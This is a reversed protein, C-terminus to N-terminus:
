GPEIPDLHLRGDSRQRLTRQLADRTTYAIADAAEDIIKPDSTTNLKATVCGGPFLTYSTIAPGSPHPETREFRTTGAVKAPAPSAGSTECTASLRVVVAPQGLKTHDLTFRTWGNRVNAAGVTWGPPLPRVCPLLSASPVSQAELLLPELQDCRLSNTPLPTTTADSNVLVTKFSFAVVLAAPIMAALLALRRASWHQVRIPHPRAPLLALFEAHVDRGEERLKRRLQSPLALGRAAAFADSIEAVTFQRRARLYVREPDCRLALCLMMNALDVAQRWRSPRAEAFAVDILLVRGDHVLLNAPKIDRHAIGTDWLKRILALGDDIVRDDVDADGLETSDEFFETVLVYEREPALEVFGYPRPSPLGAVHLKLLAYDEQQVLRRVTHFPREDELRGYLLERGLKYWRDARLHSRAYLKAFLWKPDDGRLEIRLPTSGASGALGFPEIAAVSLGLQEELAQRIAEGRAGGVDLHAARGGGYRVPFSENPTFLRFGLLSVTVAIAVGVAIDIPTEVGLHMRAIAVVGLVAAAAWKGIRRCRGAPVLTYLIGMMGVTLAAMQESPLAWASWDTRLEVGFPRPRRLLPGLVYQILVGQVTWAVLVVLLHRLRKVILLAVLQCWVLLTIATWSSLAAFAMAVPSLGPVDLDTVWRVVTDDVVTVEVAVPRLDGTFVVVASAVLTVAVTLWVAGTVQVPRSM